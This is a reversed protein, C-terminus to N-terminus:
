PVKESTRRVGGNQQYNVKGPDGKFPITHCTDKQTRESQVIHKLSKKATKHTMTKASYCGITHSSRQEGSIFMQTMKLRQSFSSHVNQVLKQTSM